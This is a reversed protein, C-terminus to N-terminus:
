EDVCTLATHLMITMSSKAWNLPIIPSPAVTLYGNNFIYNYSEPLANAPVANGDAGTMGTGTLQALSRNIHKTATTLYKKDKSESYLKMAATAYWSDFFWEAETHPIFSNERKAHSEKDTDTKINNFWFNASQYNDNHYRRIGYPGILTKVTAFVKEKDGTTLRTLKAPYILNLLAADATRYRKDNKPYDPSEGGSKIQKYIVKYAEDIMSELNERSFTHSDHNKQTLKLLDKRLLQASQNINNDDKMISLVNELASTVLAISSTNLRENEEWSGSDAVTYYKTANFYQILRYLAEIRKGQRWDNQTIGGRKISEIICDVFLGLADNQKHNWKQPENNEYVDDFTSSLSDFRIHPVLMQSDQSHILSPENIIENTRKLQESTSFYDWLTLLVKKAEKSEPNEAIMSLYGWLSDRVWIANYHTNNATEDNEFSAAQIFSGWPKDIVELKRVNETEKLLKKILRSDYKVNILDYMRKNHVFLQYPLGEPNQISYSTTLTKLQAANSEDIENFSITQANAHVLFSLVLLGSTFLTKHSLQM